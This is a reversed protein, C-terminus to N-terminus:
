VYHTLIASTFGIVRNMWISVFLLFLFTDRPNQKVNCFIGVKEKKEKEMEDDLLIDFMNQVRSDTSFTTKLQPSDFCFKSMIEQHQCKGIMYMKNTTWHLDIQWNVKTDFYM